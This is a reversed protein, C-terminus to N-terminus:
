PPPELGSVSTVTLFEIVHEGKLMLVGYYLLLAAKNRRPLAFFTVDSEMIMVDLVDDLLSFAWFKPAV